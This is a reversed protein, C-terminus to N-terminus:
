GTRSTKSAEVLDSAYATETLLPTVVVLSLVTHAARSHLCRGPGGVKESKVNGIQGGSAPRAM